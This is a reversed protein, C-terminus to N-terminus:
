EMVLGPLVPFPCVVVQFWLLVVPYGILWLYEATRINCIDYVNSGGFSTKQEVVKMRNSYRGAVFNRFAIGIVQVYIRKELVLDSLNVQLYKYNVQVVIKVLLGITLLSKLELLSLVLPIKRKFSM